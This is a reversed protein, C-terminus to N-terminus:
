LTRTYTITYKDSISIHYTKDDISVDFQTYQPLNIINTFHHTRSNGNVRMCKVDIQKVQMAHKVMDHFESMMEINAKRDLEEKTYVKSIFPDHNDAEIWKAIELVKLMLLIQAECFLLTTGSWSPWTMECKINSIVLQDGDSNIEVHGKTFRINLHVEAYNDNDVNKKFTLDIFDSVEPDIKKLSEESIIDPYKNLIDIISTFVEAKTKM